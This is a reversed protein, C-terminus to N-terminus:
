RCLVELHTWFLSLSIKQHQMGGKLDDAFVASIHQTFTRIIISSLSCLLAWKFCMTERFRSLDTWRHQVQISELIHRLEAVSGSDSTVDLGPLIWVQLKLMIPLLILMCTKSGMDGATGGKNKIWWTEMAVRAMSSIWRRQSILTILKSIISWKLPYRLYRDSHIHDSQCPLVWNTKWIM